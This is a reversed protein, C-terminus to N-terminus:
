DTGEVEGTARTGMAWWIRTSISDSVFSVSGDAKSVFVGGTHASTPPFQQLQGDWAHGHANGFICTRTNPTSFHTYHNVDDQGIYASFSNHGTWVTDTAVDAAINQCASIQAIITNPDAAKANSDIWDNYTYKLRKVNDANNLPSSPNGPFPVGLRGSLRESFVATKSTGDSVEGLRVPPLANNGTHGWGPSYRFMGQGWGARESDVGTPSGRSMVYNSPAYGWTMNGAADSPCVFGAHPLLYVTTNIPVGPHGAFTFNVADYAQIQDMYPWLMVLGSHGWDWGWGGVPIFYNSNPFCRNADEYNLAALTLQKLNNSCNSRRAAERAQQIAPLLLAILVGIIAIVVLLEILTFGLRRLGHRLM